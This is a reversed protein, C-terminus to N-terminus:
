MCELYIENIFFFFLVFEICMKICKLFVLTKFEEELWVCVDFDFYNIFEDLLLFFLKIYLVRVLFIRM